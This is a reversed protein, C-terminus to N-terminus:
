DKKLSEKAAFKILHNISINITHISKRLDKLRNNFKNKFEPPLGNEKVKEIDAMMNEHIRKAIILGVLDTGVSPDYELNYGETDLSLKYNISQEIVLKNEEQKMNIKKEM